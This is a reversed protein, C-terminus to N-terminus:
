LDTSHTLSLPENIISFYPVCTYWPVTREVGEVDGDHVRGAVWTSLYAVRHVFPRVICFTVHRLYASNVHAVYSGDSFAAAM